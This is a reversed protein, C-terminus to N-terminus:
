PAAGGVPDDQAAAEGPRRDPPLSSPEEIPGVVRFAPSTAVALMAPLLLQGGRDFGDILADLADREGLAEPHGLAYRFLSTVLCAATGPHDALVQGLEWADDFAEDDVNGSPDIVAGHDTDRWAGIADFNELGLGITDLVDHCSACYPDELHEAVRARLTQVDGSPEPISTDVGAPPAPVPDCLLNRRVYLGRLTASSSVPHSAQALFSIHGLFGRRGDAEDLVALGYGERAPAPVSYISALKRNLHTERSIFFDSYPAEVDFAIRELDRLTQERAAPGVETSMHTFLLPDKSLDDLEYLTLRDTFFSRLGDRTRPDALLREAHARIGDPDTLEGDAAAALLDDDPASNWFFFSLRTAMEWSTYRRGEGDPDPEGAEHRFLFNPSQLLAAVVYELGADFSGLADTAGGAVAVLREVEADAVPRRWARLGLEAAFQAACADDRATTSAPSCPVIASRIPAETLAQEAIAFAAVEYQEVGRPSISTESSGLAYFGDLAVDPELQPPVVIDAGFLIAMSRTYQEATLRRLVPEAPDVEIPPACSACALVLAPLV